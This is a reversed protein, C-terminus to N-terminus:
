GELISFAVFTKDDDLNSVHERRFKRTLTDITKRMSEVSHAGSYLQKRVAVRFQEDFIFPFIGDSFLVATDGYELPIRGTKVYLLAAEEGTLAGYTLHRAHPRNRLDRHWSTMREKSSVHAMGARFLELSGIKNNSLFIPNLNKDFVLLGSDGIYGYLLRPSRSQALDLVGLVAVCGAFDNEFYDLKATVTLGLEENVRKIGSNAERFAAEIDEESLGKGVLCSKEVVSNAIHLSADVCFTHSALSAPSPSPYRGEEGVSRSTGDAVAFIGGCKSIYLCDEDPRGKTNKESFHLVKVIEAM